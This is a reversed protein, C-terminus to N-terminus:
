RYLKIGTRTNQQEKTVNIDGGSYSGTSITNGDNDSVYKYHAYPHQTGDTGDGYAYDSDVGYSYWLYKPINIHIFAQDTQNQVNFTVKGESIATDTINNDTEDEMVRSVYTKFNNDSFPTISDKQNTYWNLSTQVGVDEKYVEIYFYDKASEQTTVIDHTKVRAYYWSVNDDVQQIATDADEVDTLNLDKFVTKVTEHPTTTNKDIKYVVSIQSVGDKFTQATTNFENTDADFKTTDFINLMDADDDSLNHDFDVKTTVDFAFEDKDFNTTVEHQKNYATVTGEFTYNMDSVNFDGQEMYVWDNGTSTEHKTVNLEFLYPTVLISVNGDITRNEEATDNVDINAYDKDIAIVFYKGVDSINFDDRSFEGNTIDLNYTENLEMGNQKSDFWLTINNDEDSFSQTYTKVTNNDEDVAKITLTYSEGAKMSTANIEVLFKDPIIAFKDISTGNGDFGDDTCNIDQNRKWKFDINALESSFDVTINADSTNDDRFDLKVWSTNNDSDAVEFCVTGNFEKFKSSNEDDVSAVVFDFNKNVKQTTFNSESVNNEDYKTYAVFTANADSLVKFSNPSDAESTQLRDDCDTDELAVNKAWRFKVTANDTAFSSNLDDLESTNGDDVFIKIWDMEKDSDKDILKACVTGNFDIVQTEDVADISSINMDEFVVDVKKDSVNSDSINDDDRLSQDYVVFGDIRSCADTFEDFPCEELPSDDKFGDKEYTSGKKLYKWFNGDAQFTTDARNIAGSDEKQKPCFCSNNLDISSSNWDLPHTSSGSKKLGFSSDVIFADDGLDEYVSKKFSYDCDGSGVHFNKFKPTGHKFEFGCSDSELQSDSINLDGSVDLLLAQKNSLIEVGDLTAEKIEYDLVFGTNLRSVMRGNSMTLNIDSNLDSLDFPLGSTNINFNSFSYQTGSLKEIKIAYKTDDDSANKFTFGDLNFDGREKFRIGSSMNMDLSINSMSVNCDKSVNDGFFFGFKDDKSSNLKFIFSGFDFSDTDDDCSNVEVADCASKFDGFGFMNFNGGFDSSGFNFAPCNKSSMSPINGINIGAKASNKNTKFDFLFKGDNGSCDGCTVDHVFNINYFNITEISSNDISILVDADNKLNVGREVGKITLGDFKDSDFVLNEDYNGRCVKIKFSGDGEDGNKIGDLADNITNYKPEDCSDDDGDTDGDDNVYIDTSGNNAECDSNNETLIAIQNESIWDGTSDPDRYTDSDEIFNLGSTDVDTDYKYDCDGYHGEVDNGSMVLYDIYDGNEDVLSISMGNELDIEDKDDLQIQKYDDNGECSDEPVDYTKQTDNSYVRLKWSSNIDIGDVSSLEIFPDGSFGPKYVENITVSNKHVSCDAYILIPFLLILLLKYM